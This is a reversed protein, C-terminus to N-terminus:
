KQIKFVHFHAIVPVLHLLVGFRALCFCSTRSYAGIAKCVTWASSGWHSASAILVFLKFKALSDIYEESCHLKELSSYVLFLINRLEFNLKLCLLSSQLLQAFLNLSSWLLGRGLINVTLWRFVVKHDHFIPTCARSSAGVPWGWCTQSTGCTWHPWSSRFSHTWLWAWPLLMVGNTCKLKSDLWQFFLKISLLSFSLLHNSLHFVEFRELSLLKLIELLPKLLSLSLKVGYLLKKDLSKSFKFGIESFDSVMEDVLGFGRLRDRLVLWWKLFEYYLIWGEVLLVFLHDFFKRVRIWGQM